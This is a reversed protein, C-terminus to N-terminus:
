LVNVKIHNDLTFTCLFDIVEQKGRRGNHVCMNKYSRTLTKFLPVVVVKKKFKRNCIHCQHLVATCKNQKLQFQALYDRGARTHAHYKRIHNQLSKVTNYDKHCLDCKHRHGTHTAEHEVLHGKNTTKFSCKECRYFQGTHKRMHTYLNGPFTLLPNNKLSCCSM